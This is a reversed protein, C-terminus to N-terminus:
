TAASPAVTLRVALAAPRIQRVVLVHKIPGHVWAAVILGSTYVDYWSDHATSARVQTGGGILQAARNDAYAWGVEFETGVSLRTYTLIDNCV